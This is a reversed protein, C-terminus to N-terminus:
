PTFAALTPKSGVVKRNVAPYEVPQAVESRRFRTLTETIELSGRPARVWLERSLLGISKWQTLPELEAFWNKGQSM